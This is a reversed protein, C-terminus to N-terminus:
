DITPLADLGSCGGAAAEDILVRAQQQSAVRAVPLDVGRRWQAVAEQKDTGTILILM